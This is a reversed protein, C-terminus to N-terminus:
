GDAAYRRFGQEDFHPDMGLYEDIRRARMVAFSVCDVLSLRRRGATLLAHFGADHEAEDVWLPHIMPLLESTLVRVAKLGLRAQVLTVTELLVYNTTVFGAAGDLGHEWAPRIISHGTDEADLLAFLASTDVFVSVV